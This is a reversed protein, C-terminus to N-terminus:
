TDEEILADIEHGALRRRVLLAEAVREVSNWHRSLLAHTQQRLRDLTGESLGTQVILRDIREGDVGDCVAAGFYEAEAAAGAMGVVIRHQVPAGRSGVIAYGAHEGQKPVITARGCPLGLARGAVAHGAEHYASREADRGALM